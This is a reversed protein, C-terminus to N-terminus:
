SVVENIDEEKYQQNTMDCWQTIEKHIAEVIENYMNLLLQRSEADKLTNPIKNLLYFKMIGCVINQHTSLYEYVEERKILLKKKNENEIRLKEIQGAKHKKILELLEPDDYKGNGEIAGKDQKDLEYAEDFSDMSYGPNNKVMGDPEITDCIRYVEAISIPQGRKKIERFLANRTYLDKDM